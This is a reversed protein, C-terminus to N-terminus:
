NTFNTAAIARVFEDRRAFAIHGKPLVACEANLLFAVLAYFVPERPILEMRSGLLIDCAEKYDSDEKLMGALTALAAGNACVATLKKMFDGDSTRQVVAKAVSEQEFFAALTRELFSAPIDIQSVIDAIKSTAATM